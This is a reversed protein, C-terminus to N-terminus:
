STTPALGQQVQRLQDDQAAMRAGAEKMWHGIQQNHAQLETLGVKMKHMRHELESAATNSATASSNIKDQFTATLDDKLQSAIADYRKSQGTTATPAQFRSIPDQQPWPDTPSSSVKQSRLHVQARKPAIIAPPHEQQQKDKLLNILVDRGFAQLVPQPPDESAGVECAGGDSSEHSPQM